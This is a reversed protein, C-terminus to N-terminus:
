ADFSQVQRARSRQQSGNILDMSSSIAFVPVVRPRVLVPCIHCTPLIMFHFVCGALCSGALCFDLRCYSGDAVAAFLHFLLQAPFSRWGRLFDRM